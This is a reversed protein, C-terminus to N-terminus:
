SDHNTAALRLGELTMAQWSIVTDALHPELIARDGGTLYILPEKTVATALERCLREIGGAVAGHVGLHIAEETSKGPLAPLPPVIEVKPLKATYTHLAQAMLRLGPFITGGLFVGSEDVLDVTVASGADVIIAPRGKERYPRAQLALANLLRDLGVKEPVKVQLPVQLQRYDDIIRVATGKARLWEALQVMIPPNVGSVCWPTEVKVGWASWQGEWAVPEALPLSAMAAVEHGICRGWKMRSNGLDAVFLRDMHQAM